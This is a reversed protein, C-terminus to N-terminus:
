AGAHDGHVDRGLLVGHVFGVLLQTIFLGCCGVDVGTYVLSSHQSGDSGDSLLQSQVLTHWLVTQAQETTSHFLLALICALLERHVELGELRDSGLSIM